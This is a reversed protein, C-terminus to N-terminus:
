SFVILGAILGSLAGLVIGGSVTLAIWRVRRGSGLVSGAGNVGLERRHVVTVGPPNTTDLGEPRTPALPHSPPVAGMDLSQDIPIQLFLSQHATPRVEKDVSRSGAQDTANERDVFSPRRPRAPGRESLSDTFMAFALVSM